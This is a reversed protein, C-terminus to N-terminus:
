KAAAHEASAFARSEGSRTLRMPFARESSSPITRNDVDGEVHTGALSRGKSDRYM